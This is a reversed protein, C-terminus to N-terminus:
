NQKGALALAYVHAVQAQTKLARACENFTHGSTMVDDIILVNKGVLTARAKEDQSFKGRLSFVGALQTRRQEITTAAQNLTHQKRELLALHPLHRLQAYTAAMIQAQNFGRVGFRRPHLPVHCVYDIQWPASGWWWLWEGLMLAVAKISDYKMRKILTSLPPQFQAIAQFGDLYVRGPLNLALPEDAAATKAPSGFTIKDACEHCLDKGGTGYRRCNLCQKPLLLSLWQGLNNLTKM